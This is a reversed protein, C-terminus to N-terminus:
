DDQVGKVLNLMKRTVPICIKGPLKVDPFIMCIGSKEISNVVYLFNDPAGVLSVKDGPELVTEQRQEIEGDDMACFECSEFHTPPEAIVWKQSDTDWRSPALVNIQESGCIKCHQTKVVKSM